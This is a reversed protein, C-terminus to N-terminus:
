NKYHGRLNLILIQDPHVSYILRHKDTIRRSWFGTLVHKLKEPKGIGEYPNKEISDILLEIRKLISKQNTSKWHALDTLAQASLKIEM